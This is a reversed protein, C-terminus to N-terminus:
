LARWEIRVRLLESEDNPTLKKKLNKLMEVVTLIKEIYVINRRIIINNIYIRVKSIGEM